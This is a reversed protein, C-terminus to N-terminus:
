RLWCDEVVGNAMVWYEAEVSSCSFVNQRKLSWSILNTDLFMAYGLTSRLTDQCGTWHADTYVILEFSASCRLLLGFDLPGTSLV